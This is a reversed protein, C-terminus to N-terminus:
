KTLSGKGIKHWHEISMGYDDIMWSPVYQHTHPCRKLYGGDIAKETNCLVVGGSTEFMQIDPVHNCELCHAFFTLYKINTFVDMKGGCVPCKDNKKM